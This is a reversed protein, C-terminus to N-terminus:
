MAIERIPTTAITQLSSLALLTGLTARCLIHHQSRWFNKRPVSHFHYYLNEGPFCATSFTHEVTHDRDRIRKFRFPTPLLTCGPGSLPKKSGSIFGKTCIVPCRWRMQVISSHYESFSNGDLPICVRLAIIKKM